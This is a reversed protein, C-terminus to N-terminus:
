VGDTKRQRLAKEARQGADEALSKSLRLAEDIGSPKLWAQAIQKAILAYWRLAAYADILLADASEIYQKPTPKRRAVPKTSV